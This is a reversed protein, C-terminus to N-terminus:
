TTINCGNEVSKTTFYDIKTQIMQQWHPGKGQKKNTMHNIRKTLFNCPNPHNMLKFAIGNSWLMYAIANANWAAANGQYMQEQLPEGEMGRDSDRPDMPPMEVGRGVSGSGRTERSAIANAIGRDMMDKQQRTIVAMVYDPIRPLGMMENILKGTSGDVREGLNVSFGCGLQEMLTYLIYLKCALTNQWLPNNTGFQALKNYLIMYRKAFFQCPNPHNFMHGFMTNMFSTPDFSAATAGLPDGITGSPLDTNPDFQENIRKPLFTRRNKLNAM